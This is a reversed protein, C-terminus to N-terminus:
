ICVCLCQTFYPWSFLTIYVYNSPAICEHAAVCVFSQLALSRQSWSISAAQLSPPKFFWLDSVWSDFGSHPEWACLSCHLESESQPPTNICMGRCLLAQSVTQKCAMCPIWGPATSKEAHRLYACRSSPHWYILAFSPNNLTVNCSIKMKKKCYFRNFLQETNGM